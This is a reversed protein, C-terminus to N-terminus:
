ISSKAIPENTCFVIDRVKLTDTERLKLKWNLNNEQKLSADSYFDIQALVEASLFKPYQELFLSFCSLSSCFGYLYHRIAKM